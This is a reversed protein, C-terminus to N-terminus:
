KLKSLRYGAESWALDVNVEDDGLSVFPFKAGLIGLQQLRNSSEITYSFWYFVKGATRALVRYAYLLYNTATPQTQNYSVYLDNILSLTGVWDGTQLRTFGLWESATARNEVDCLLFTAIEDTMNFQNLVPELDTSSISLIRNTTKVYCMAFSVQIAKENAAKALLM